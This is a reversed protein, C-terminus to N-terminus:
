TVFCPTFVLNACNGRKEIKSRTSKEIVQTNEVVGFYESEEQLRTDQSAV